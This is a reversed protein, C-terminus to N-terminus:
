DPLSRRASSSWRKQMSSRSGQDSSIFDHNEATHTSPVVIKRYRPIISRNRAKKGTVLFVPGCTKHLGTKRLKIVNSSFCLTKAATKDSSSRRRNRGIYARLPDRGPRPIPFFLSGTMRRGSYATGRGAERGFGATQPSKEGRKAAWLGSVRRKRAAVRSNERCFGAPLRRKRAAAARNERNGGPVAGRSGGSVRGSHATERCVRGSEGRAARSKGARRGRRARSGAWKTGSPAGRM